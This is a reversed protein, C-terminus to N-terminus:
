GFLKSLLGKFFGFLQVRAEEPLSEIAAAIDDGNDDEQQEFVYDDAQEEEAYGGGGGYNPPPPAGQNMYGHLLGGAFRGAGKTIGRGNKRWFNKIGSFFRRFRQMKALLDDGDDDQQLEAASDLLRM